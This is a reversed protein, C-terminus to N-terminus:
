DSSHRPRSARRRTGLLRDIYARSPVLAAADHSQKQSFLRSAGALLLAIAGILILEPAGVEGFM